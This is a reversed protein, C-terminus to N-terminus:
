LKDIEVFFLRFPSMFSIRLTLYRFGRLYPTNLYECAQSISKNVYSFTNEIERAISYSDIYLNTQHLGTNQTNLKSLFRKNQSRNGSHKSIQTKFQQAPFDPFKCACASLLRTSEETKKDRHTLQSLKVNKKATQHPSSKPFTTM